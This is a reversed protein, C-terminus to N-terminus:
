RVPKPQRQPYRGQLDALTIRVLDTMGRWADRILRVRRTQQYNWAVPVEYIPVGLRQAVFLFEVDFGSTVSPGQVVAPRAPPYIQLHDLVQRAVPNSFAKFGCQTDTLRLGILISRALVQSWSLLYRGLPAGPRVLGRSGIAVGPATELRELLRPAESIPTAQDMDTFLIVEGQAARMGAVLAAAKGGHPITLVRSGAEAALRATGDQSGDDVVIVEGTYKQQALWNLVQALKGARIAPAENYAPILISLKRNM